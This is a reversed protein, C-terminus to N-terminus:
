TLSQQFIRNFTVWNVGAIVTLATANNICNLVRVAHLTVDKAVGYITEAWLVPWM